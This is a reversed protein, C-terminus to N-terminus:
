YSRRTHGYDNFYRYVGHISYYAGYEAWALYFVINQLKYMGYMWM